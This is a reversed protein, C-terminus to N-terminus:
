LFDGGKDFHLIMGHLTIQEGSISLDIMQEDNLTVEIQFTEGETYYYMRHWIQEQDIQGPGYLAPEPKTFVTSNGMIAENTSPDTVSYNDGMDVFVNISVEGNSTKDFLFETRVLRYRKGEGWFPNFMKTLINLNSLLTIQGGGIYTGIASTGITFTDKTPVSIIRYVGGNLNTSGLCGDIFVFEGSLLNHDISTIITGSLGYISLTPANRSDRPTLRVVFGQQNGAVIDPNRAQLLGSNWSQLWSSWPSFPTNPLLDAWTYSFLLQFYGYCTFNERFFSFTNNRYNYVLVRNPFKLQASGLSSISFDPYTFYALELVFDRVGYVRFTGENDNSIEYVVDPIVEDFRVVNLSDCTHLGVNGMAILGNDFNVVSFTSECGLEQSIRQWIFPLVENGTYSLQWTSKEFYVVLTDKIFGCSIIYENTPADVFGGRGVIDSRWGNASDTPDGVQSWRARQPFVQYTPGASTQQEYTNLAVLRGKYPILILCTTLQFEGSDDLNPTFDVWTSDDYFRIPDPTVTNFNTAWFLPKGSTPDFWYNTTWFFDYDTGTWTTPIISPLEEWQSGVFRYSYTTDFAITQRLNTDVANEILDRSRLGMVPLGPYYFASLTAPTPGLAGGFTITVVGTAYNITAASIFGAPSVVMVGTGTTDTLTQNVGGAISIVIPEINGPVLQGSTPLGALSFLNFSFPGADPSSINGLSISVLERQLRGLTANGFKKNIRGRFVYANELSEFAKEPLMFPKLNKQTGLDYPGIFLPQM